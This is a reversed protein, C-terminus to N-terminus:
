EELQSRWDDLSNHLDELITKEEEDPKYYVGETCGHQNNEGTLGNFAHIMMLITFADDTDNASFDTWRHVTSNKLHKRIKAKTPNEELSIAESFEKYISKVSDRKPCLFVIGNDMSREFSLTDMSDSWNCIDSERYEPYFTDSFEDHNCRLQYLFSIMDALYTHYKAGKCCERIKILEDREICNYSLFLTLDEDIKDQATEDIPAVMSGRVEPSGMNKRYEQDKRIIKGDEQILWSYIRWSRPITTVFIPWGYIEKYLRFMQLYNEIVNKNLDEDKEYRFNSAPKGEESTKLEGGICVTPNSLSLIKQIEGLFLSPETIPAAMIDMYNRSACKGVTLWTYEPKM